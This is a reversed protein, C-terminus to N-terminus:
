GLSKLQGAFTQKLIKGNKIIFTDTAFTVELSPTKGHWVIYVLEDNIVTKDLEVISKKKPFHSMLDVFFNEIEDLGTYSTEPTILVSENTYDTMLVSLNNEMFSSLHNQLVAESTSYSVTGANKVISQM